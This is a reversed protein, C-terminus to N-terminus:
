AAQAKSFNAVPVKIKPWFSEERQGNFLKVFMRLVIGPSVAGFAPELECTSKHKGNTNVVRRGAAGAGQQALEAPANDSTLPQQVLM